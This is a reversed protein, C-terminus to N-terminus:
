VFNSYYRKTVPDTDLTKVAITELFSALDRPLVSVDHTRGGMRYLAQRMANNSVRQREAETPPDKVIFNWDVFNNFNSFDLAALNSLVGSHQCLEKHCKRWHPIQCNRNCYRVVKCRACSVLKHESSGPKGCHFCIGKGGLAEGQRRNVLEHRELEDALDDFSAPFLMVTNPNEQRVGQNMDLFTRVKAYFIILCAPGSKILDQWTFFTPRDADELHFNVLVQEGYQTRLTVRPRIFFNVDIIEGALAWHRIPSYMGGGAVDQRYYSEDIDNEDQLYAFPPFNWHNRLGIESCSDSGTDGCKCEIPLKPRSGFLQFWDM